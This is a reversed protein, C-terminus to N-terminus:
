SKRGPTTRSARNSFVAVPPKLFAKAGLYGAFGGEVAGMVGELVLEIAEVPKDEVRTIVLYTGTRAGSGVLAGSITGITKIARETLNTGRLALGSLGGAAYGSGFTILTLVSNIAITKAFDAWSFNEHIIGSIANQGGAIGGGILLSSGLIVLFLLLM